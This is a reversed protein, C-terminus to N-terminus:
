GSAAAVGSHRPAIAGRNAIVHCALQHGRKAAAAEDGTMLYHALYAGNFSDGAATTDVVTTAPAFSLAETLTPDLPVPGIEGRKLMGAGIGAQRLRQRVAAEDADEFLSMEDDVSPLAIDCCSWARAVDRRATAIDPWLAPRYNSDFVFRGGRARFGTLWDFFRDRDAQPLIALSIASAFVVDFADLATLVGDHPPTLMAKAASTDRWYAFSREGAGDVTVLYLGPLKTDHRSILTTSVGEAAIFDVIRDSLADRGVMSVFAVDHEQPLSRRLYIATNMADGAVGLAAATNDANTLMEVMAEGLCAIKLRTM